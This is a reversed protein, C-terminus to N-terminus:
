ESLRRPGTETVRAPQYPRLQEIQEAKLQELDLLIDSWSRGSVPDRLNADLDVLPKLVYAHHYIEPRPLTLEATSVVLDDFLLLDLDLTRDSYSGQDRVRGHANEIRALARSLQDTDSDTFGTVVCNLFDNGNMGYAPSQYIASVRPSEFLETLASCASLVNQEPEINSGVGIYVRHM